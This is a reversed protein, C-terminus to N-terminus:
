LSFLKEVIKISKDREQILFCFFFNFRFFIFVCIDKCSTPCLFWFEIVSENLLTAKKLRYIMWTVYCM